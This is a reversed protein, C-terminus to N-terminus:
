PTRAEASLTGPVAPSRRENAPLRISELLTQNTRIKLGQKLTNYLAQQQQQEKRRMALYKVGDKVEVLPRLNAPQREVLKILYFATPTEIVPAFDGPQTLRSIAALVVADWPANTDGVTLWGIDGGRYRSAQDESYNQAVLGFTGDAVAAAKAETLVAEAKRAVEARKDATATRAVKLEILAVRVKAPTGFRHPNSRYYDVIDEASVKPQGLKALQDEQYKATIMRKLSAAIQPDKDYGAALAEQHLVELRIMEGLLAEKEKPDAYRGPATQARRALEAQFAEATIVQGEVVAVANPPVSYSRDARGCGFLWLAGTIGVVVLASALSPIRSRVPQNLSAGRPARAVQRGAVTLGAGAELPAPHLHWHDLLRKLHHRVLRRYKECLITDAGRAGLSAPEAPRIGPRVPIPASARADTEATPAASEPVTDGLLHEIETQRPKGSVAESGPSPAARRENHTIPAYSAQRSELPRKVRPAMNLSKPMGM